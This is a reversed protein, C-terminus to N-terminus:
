NVMWIASAESGVTAELAFDDRGLLLKWPAQGIARKSSSLVVAKPVIPRKGACIAVAATTSFQRGLYVWLRGNPGGKGSGSFPSENM